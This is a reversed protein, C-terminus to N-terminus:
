KNLVAKMNIYGGKNNDNRNLTADSNKLSEKPKDERFVNKLSTHSKTKVEKVDLESIKDFYGIIGEIQPAFRNLEDETLNINALNGLRKVDEKTIQKNM